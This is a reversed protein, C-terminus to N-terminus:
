CRDTNAMLLDFEPTVTSPCVSYQTSTLKLEKQLGALRAAAINNRDLYNLIYILVVMPLLRIDIKRVLAREHHLREEDSWGRILAPAELKRNPTSHNALSSESIQRAVYKGDRGFGNLGAAHDHQHGVFAM